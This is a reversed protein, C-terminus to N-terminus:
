QNQQSLFFNNNLIAKNYKNLLKGDIVCVQWNIYHNKLKM